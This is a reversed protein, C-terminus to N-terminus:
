EAIRAYSALVSHEFRVKNEEDSTNNSSEGTPGFDDSSKLLSYLSSSTSVDDSLLEPGTRGGAADRGRPGAGGCGVFGRQLQQGSRTTHGGAGVTRDSNKGGGGGGVPSILKDMVSVSANSELNSEELASGSPEAKISTARSGPSQM